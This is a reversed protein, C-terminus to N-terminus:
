KIAFNLNILQFQVFSNVRLKGMIEVMDEETIAVMAAMAMTATTTTIDM